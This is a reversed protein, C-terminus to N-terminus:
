LCVCARQWWTPPKQKLLKRTGWCFLQRDLPFYYKKKIIKKSYFIPTSRMLCFLYGCRDFVMIAKRLIKILKSVNCTKRLQSNRIRETSLTLEILKRSNLWFSDSYEALCPIVREGTWKQKNWRNTVFLAFKKTDHLGVGSLCFPSVDSRRTVHRSLPGVGIPHCADPWKNMQVGGADLVRQNNCRSSFWLSSSIWHQKKKTERM